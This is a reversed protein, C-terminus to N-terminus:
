STLVACGRLFSAIRYNRTAVTKSRRVPCVSGADPLLADFRYSVLQPKSEAFRRVPARCICATLPAHMVAQATPTPPHDDDDTKNLPNTQHNAQGVSMTALWVKSCGKKSINPHLISSLSHRLSAQLPASRLNHSNHRVPPLTKHLLM